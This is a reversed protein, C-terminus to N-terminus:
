SRTERPIDAAVAGGNLCEDESLVTIREM